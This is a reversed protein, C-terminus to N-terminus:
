SPDGAPDTVGGECGGNEPASRGDGYVRLFEPLRRDDGGTLNLQVGWVTVVAPVGLDPYPSLIGDAPLLSALKALDSEGLSPRYTIWVAGRALAAVANEARVAVDYRGCALWRRWHPGGVPPVEEYAVPATVVDNPLDLHTRADDLDLGGDERVPGDRVVRDGSELSESIRPVLVVSGGVVVLLLVLLLVVRRPPPADAGSPGLTDDEPPKWTSSM